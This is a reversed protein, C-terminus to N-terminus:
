LRDRLAYWTMALVLTPHRLLVGGPFRPAPLAAFIDFREQEGCIAEALLKGAFTATGVGQGSYGCATYLGPRLRRLYPLRRMTVALTGGWAHAIRVDALGPYIKLMHRRVFAKLDPPFGHGYSEGGGFIMRGDRSLRWYHVVFRSDAVAERGPILADARSGLPETALVYNHIPMVRSETDPELGRLYGNCALIVSDATVTGRGTTVQPRAGGGLATVTSDEHLIAGAEEAARAIGLAFNLPHLHGATADRWGGRYAETGIAAAVEARSLVSLGQAGYVRQLHEVEARAPGLYREKHVAHILGDQWDCAIAHQAILDKVTAKAEEALDYLARARGAGFWAELTPQDRRQGSHLQGGNRGSAGWGLRRAELLVVRRGRRALHLAASLGTYGGGVICVDSRTDGQLPQRRRDGIATAAYWSPAHDASDGRALAPPGAPTNM